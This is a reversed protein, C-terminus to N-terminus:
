APASAANLARNLEIKKIAVCKLVRVFRASGSLPTRGRGDDFRARRGALIAAGHLVGRRRWLRHRPAFERRKFDGTKALYGMISGAFTDGAGTPDVVEDLPYAPVSFLADRTLMLSGHEGKKIIIARPGLELLQRAAKLLNDQETLLRAEGDNLVAIDVRGFVELVTDRALNIWLNM